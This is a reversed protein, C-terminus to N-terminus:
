QEQKEGHGRKRECQDGDEQTAAIKEAVKRIRGNLWFMAGLGYGLLLLLQGLPDTIIRDHVILLVLAVLLVLALDLKIGNFPSPAM